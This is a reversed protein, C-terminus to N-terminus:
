HEQHHLVSQTPVPLFLCVFQISYTLIQMLDVSKLTLLNSQLPFNGVNLTQRPDFAALLATLQCMCASIFGKDFLMDM